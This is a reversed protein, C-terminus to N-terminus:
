KLWIKIDFSYNPVVISWSNDDELQVATGNLLVHKESANILNPMVEFKVEKQWGYEYKGQKSQMLGTDYNFNGVNNKKFTSLLNNPLFKVEIDVTPSKSCPKFPLKSGCKFIKDVTVGEQKGDYSIDAAKGEIKNVVARVYCNTATLADVEENSAYDSKPRVMGM